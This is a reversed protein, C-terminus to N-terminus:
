AAAPADAGFDLDIGILQMERGTLIEHAPTGCDPCRFSFRGVPYKTANCGRCHVSLPVEEIELAAGECLTGRSAPGFCMYLSRLVVSQTGLRVHLRSIRRAGEREAHACSLEILSKAISLEHM